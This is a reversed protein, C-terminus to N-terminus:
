GAARATMLDADCFTPRFALVGMRSLDDLQQMDATALLSSTKSTLGFVMAGRAPDNRVAERAVMLLRLSLNQVDAQLTASM